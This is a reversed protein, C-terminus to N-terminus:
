FDRQGLNKRVPDVRSLQDSQTSQFKKYLFNFKFLLKLTDFVYFFFM